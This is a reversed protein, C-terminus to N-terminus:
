ADREERLLEARAEDRRDRADADEDTWHQMLDAMVAEDTRLVNELWPASVEGEDTRVMVGYLSVSAQSGPDTMTRPSGAHREYQLVIEIEHEHSGAVVVTAHTPYRHIM